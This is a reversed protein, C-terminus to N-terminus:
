AGATKSKFMQLQELAQSMIGALESYAMPAMCSGRHRWLLHIHRVRKDDM